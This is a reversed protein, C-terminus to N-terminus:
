TKRDTERCNRGPILHMAKVDTNGGTYVIGGANLNVSVKYSIDPKMQFNELWVKHTQNSIAISILVDYTGPKIKGKTNGDAKDPTIAKDHKGKEYFTPIGFYVDQITHSKCRNVEPNM